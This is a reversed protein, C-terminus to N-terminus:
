RIFFGAEDQPLSRIYQALLELDEDDTGSGSIIIQASADAALRIVNDQDSNRFITQEIMHADSLVMFLATDKVVNGYSREFAQLIYAGNNDAYPRQYSQKRRSDYSNLYDDIMASHEFEQRKRIAGNMGIVMDSKQMYIFFDMINANFIRTMGITDIVPKFRVYDEYRLPNLHNREALSRVNADNAMLYVMDEIKGLEKDMSLRSNELASFSANRIEKEIKDATSRFLLIGLVFLPVIICIIIIVINRFYISKTKYQRLHSFIKSLKVMIVGM